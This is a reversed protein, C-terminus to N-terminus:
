FYDEYYRSLRKRLNNKARHILATVASTSTDMVQAIEDYSLGDYKSLVFATHQNPPLTALAAQLLRRREDIELISDPRTSSSAAIDVEPDDLHIAGQFFGIRKKRKRKRVIDLSKRVAIQHIWTSITADGRFKSISRYVEIFTEQALDEAEQRNNVFRYCINVVKHLNEDVLSKFAESSVAQLGAITPDTSM